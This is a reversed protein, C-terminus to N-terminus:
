CCFILILCSQLQEFAYKTQQISDTWNWDKVKKWRATWVSQEGDKRIEQEGECFSHTSWGADANNLNRLLNNTASTELNSLSWLVTARRKQNRRRERKSKRQGELGSMTPWLSVECPLEYFFTCILTIFIRRCYHQWDTLIDSGFVNDVPPPM